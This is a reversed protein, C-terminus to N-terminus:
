RQFGLFTGTALPLDPGCDVAGQHGEAEVPSSVSRCEAESTDSCHSGEEGSVQARPQGTDMCANSPLQM